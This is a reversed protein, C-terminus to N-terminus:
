TASSKTESYEELLKELRAAAEGAASIEDLWQRHELSLQQHVSEVYASLVERNGAALAQRVRDLEAFLKDLTVRTREYREANRRSQATAEENELRSALAQGVLGLAALGSWYPALSAALVGALASAGGGLAVATGSRSLKRDAELRHAAGRDRYYTRQVDLQYRRFYELLLLPEGVGEARTVLEFFRLRDTEAEARRTMWRELLSGTRISRIWAAALASAVAGAAMSILLLAKTAPESLLPSFAGTALLAAASIGAWFVANRARNSLKTFRSQAELAKADLEEFREASVQIESRRLVDALEPASGRYREAHESPAIVYDDPREAGILDVARRIREQTTSPPPTM